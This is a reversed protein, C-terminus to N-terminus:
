QELNKDEGLDRNEELELYEIPTICRKWELCKEDEFQVRKM